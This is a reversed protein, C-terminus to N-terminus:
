INTPILEMFINLFPKYFEKKQLNLPSVRLNRLQHSLSLTIWCLEVDSIWCNSFNVLSFSFKQSTSKKQAPRHIGFGRCILPYFFHFFLYAIQFGFIGHSRFKLESQRDQKQSFSYKENVKLEVCTVACVELFEIFFNNTM